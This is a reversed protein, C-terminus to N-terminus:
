KSRRTLLDYLEPRRYRNFGWDSRKKKLDALDFMATIITEETRNAQALIEGFPGTIFSSGYFTITHTQGHESGVRNATVLPITNAAAHGQMVRQWHPQTDLVSNHPESGIATPFFMLEAGSLYFCRAAEPFWQDWCIGVGVRAYKTDWVKFGTDGGKFYFQEHYGPGEPIHSKRYFGLCQGDADIMAATNFYDAGAKEFFSIPLVVKLEAALSQFHSLTPHNDAPRALEFFEKKQDKCFYPTEFLEPLLAINAGRSAASRVMKEAKAINASPDNDCAMQIAAVTVLGSGTKM